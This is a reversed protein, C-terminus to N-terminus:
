PFPRWRSGCRSTLPWRRFSWRRARAPDASCGPSGELGRVLLPVGDRKGPVSHIVGVVVFHLLPSVAPVPSVRTAVAAVVRHLVGTALGVVQLGSGVIVEPNPGNGVAAVVVERHAGPRSDRSPRGAGTRCRRHRTAHAVQVHAPLAVLAADGPVPLRRGADGVLPVHSVVDRVVAPAVGARADVPGGVIDAGPGRELGLRSTQAPAVDPKEAHPGGILVVAGEGEGPRYRRRLHGPVSRDARRPSVPM